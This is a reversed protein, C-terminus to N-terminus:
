FGNPFRKRMAPRNYIERLFAEFQRQTAKPFDRLWKIVERDVERHWQQYGCHSEEDKARAKFREDRPAYLGRLTSHRELERAILRSIVHHNQGQCNPPEPAPETDEDAKAEEEEKAEEEAVKLAELGLASKAAEAELQAVLRPNVQRLAECASLKGQKCFAVLTTEGPVAPVQATVLLLLLPLVDKM